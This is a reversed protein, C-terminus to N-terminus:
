RHLNKLLIFPHSNSKGIANLNLLIIFSTLLAAFLIPLETKLFQFGDPNQKVQIKTPTTSHSKQRM